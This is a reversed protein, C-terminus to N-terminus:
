DVTPRILRLGAVAAPPLVVVLAVIVATIGIPTRLVRLWRRSM